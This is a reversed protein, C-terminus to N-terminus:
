VVSLLATDGVTHVLELVCRERHGLCAVVVRKGVDEECGGACIRSLEQGASFIHLLSHDVPNVKCQCPGYVVVLPVLVQSKDEGVSVAHDAPPLHIPHVIGRGTKAQPAAVENVKGQGTRRAPNLRHGPWPSRDAPLRSPMPGIGTPVQLRSSAGVARSNESYPLSEQLCFRRM